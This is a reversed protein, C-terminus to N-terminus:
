EMRELLNQPTEGARIFYTKGHSYDASRKVSSARLKLCMKKAEELIMNDDKEASRKKKCKVM